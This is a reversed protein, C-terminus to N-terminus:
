QIPRIAMLEKEIHYQVQAPDLSRGGPIAVDYVTGKSSRDALALLRAAAALQDPHWKQKQTRLFRLKWPPVGVLPALENESLNAPASAYKILARLGTSIASVSPVASNSDNAIAWRFKELLEIPRAEWMADSLDWGMVGVVGEYYQAVAVEDILEGDIDACLQSVAALLEGLGSGVSVQLQNVAASTVKRDHKRFEAILAAELERSKLEGCSAELAGAKRIAELLKKGKVGGPHTAVIRVHEPVDAIAALLIEAVDDTASDIGQVVLVTLEGFLSPSLANALEGAATENSATIDQRVMQPDAKRASTLVGEIVRQVLVQEKGVALVVHAEDTASKRVM